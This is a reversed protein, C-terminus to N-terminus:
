FQTLSPTDGGSPNSDDIVLCGDIQKSGGSKLVVVRRFGCTGLITKWDAVLKGLQVPAYNWGIVVVALDRKQVNLQNFVLGVKERPLQLLFGHDDYRPQLLFTYDWSSFQLVVNAAKAEHFHRVTHSSSTPSACGTLLAGTLSLLALPKFHKM